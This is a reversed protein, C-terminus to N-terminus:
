RLPDAFSGSEDEKWARCVPLLPVPPDFVGFPLTATISSGSGSGSGSDPRGSILWPFTPPRPPTRHKGWGGPNWERMWSGAMGLTHLRSPLDTWMPSATSGHGTEAPLRATSTTRPPMAVHGHEMERGTGSRGPDVDSVPFFDLARPSKEGVMWGRWTGCLLGGGHPPRHGQADRWAHRRRPPAPKPPRSHQMWPTVAPLGAAMIQEDRPASISIDPHMPADSVGHRDTMLRGAFARCM